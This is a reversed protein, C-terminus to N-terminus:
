WPNTKIFAFQFLGKKQRVHQANSDAFTSCGEGRGCGRVRIMGNDFGGNETKILGSKGLLVVTANLVGKARTFTTIPCKNYCHHPRRQLFILYVAQVPM